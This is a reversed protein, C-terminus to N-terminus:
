KDRAYGQGIQEFAKILLVVKFMCKFVCGACYYSKIKVKDHINETVYEKFHERMHFTINLSSTHVQMHSVQLSYDHLM